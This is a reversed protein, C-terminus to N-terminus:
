SRTIRQAGKTEAPLGLLERYQTLVAPWAYRREVEAHSRPLVTRRWIDQNADNVASLISAPEEPDCLLGTRGHEIVDRIGPADAAVVAVGAAMAEILVLGFGEARSPLVLVDLKVLADQPRPVAGHLTVYPGVGVKAIEAEIRSRESGEGFIHLHAAPRSPDMGLLRPMARVLHPVRKIPDLRGIFGVQLPSAAPRDLNKRYIEDFSAVDVANPVVAIRREPVGAWRRAIAAASPSPVVVKMAAVQSFRQVAWHWCPEPQTTQISQLFRVRRCFVGAVAALANAHMLFSFITDFRGRWILRILRLLTLPFATVSTASLATVKVGADRLEDAV